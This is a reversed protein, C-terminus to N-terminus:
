GQSRTDCSGSLGISHSSHSDIECRSFRRNISAPAEPLTPIQLGSLKACCATLNADLTGSPENSTNHEEREFADEHDPGEAQERCSESCFLAETLTSCDPHGCAHRVDRPYRRQDEAYDLYAQWDAASTADPFPHTGNTISM